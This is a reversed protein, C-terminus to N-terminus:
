VLRAQDFVDPAIVDLHDFRRGQALANGGAHRDREEDSREEADDRAEDQCKPRVAPCGYQAGNLREGKALASAREGFAVTTARDGSRAVGAVSPRMFRRLGATPGLPVTLLGHWLAGSGTARDPSRAVVRWHYGTGVTRM